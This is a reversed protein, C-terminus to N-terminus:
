ILIASFGSKEFNGGRYVRSTDESCYDVESEGYADGVISGTILFAIALYTKTM